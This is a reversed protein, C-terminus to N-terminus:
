VDGGFLPSLGKNRFGDMIQTVQEIFTKQMIIYFTTYTTRLKCGSM